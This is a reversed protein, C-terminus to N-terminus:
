ASQNSGDSRGQRRQVGEPDFGLDVDLVSLLSRTMLGAGILLVIALAVQSVILLQRVRGVRFGATIGRPEEKLLECVDTRRAVLQPLLGFVIGALLLSVLTFALVPVDIGVRDLLPIRQEALSKLLSVGWSALILGLIGGLLALLLSEALLHRVLQRRSSGLATRIASDRKRVVGRALQLNALNTCAIMLVFGVAGLLLWLNGRVGRVLRDHLSSLRIRAQAYLQPYEVGLRDAILQLKSEAQALSVGPQLRAIVKVM